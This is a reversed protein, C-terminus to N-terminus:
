EEEELFEQLDEIVRKYAVYQGKIYPSGGCPATKMDEIIGDLEHQYREILWQINEKM